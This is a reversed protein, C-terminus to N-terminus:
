CWSTWMCLVINGCFRFISILMVSFMDANTKWQCLESVGDVDMGRKSWSATAAQQRHFETLWAMLKGKTNVHTKYM